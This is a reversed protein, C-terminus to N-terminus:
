NEDFLKLRKTLTSKYEQLRKRTESLLSAYDELSIEITDKEAESFVNKKIASNYNSLQELITAFTNAGLLTTNRIANYEGGSLTVDNERMDTPSDVSTFSGNGYSFLNLSRTESQFSTEEFFAESQERLLSIENAENLSNEIVALHSNVEALANQFYELLVVKSLSEQTKIDVNLLKYPDISLIGLKPQVLLKKETLEFIQQDLYQSHPKNSVLKLSDLKVSYAKYLKQRTSNILDSRYNQKEKLSRIQNTIGVSGSMIRVIESKNDDRNLKLVDLKRSIKDFELTLSDIKAKNQHFQLVSSFLNNEWEVINQARVSGPCLLLFAIGAYFIYKYNKNQKM